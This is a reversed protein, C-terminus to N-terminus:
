CKKNGQQGETSQSLPSSPHIARQLVTVVDAEVVVNEVIRKSILDYSAHLGYQGRVLVVDGEGLHEVVHFLRSSHPSKKKGQESEWETRVGNGANTSASRSSSPGPIKKKEEDAHKEEEEVMPEDEMVCRIPIRQRHLTMQGPSREHYAHTEVEVELVIPLTPLHPPSPGSSHPLRSACSADTSSTSTSLTGGSSHPRGYKEHQQLHGHFHGRRVSGRVVGIGVWHSLGSGVGNGKPVTSPRSGMSLPPGDSPAGDNEPVCGARRTKESTASAGSSEHRRGSEPGDRKMEAERNNWTHGSASPRAMAVTGCRNTTGQSKRERTQRQHANRLAHTLTSRVQQLDELYSRLLANTHCVHDHLSTETDHTEEIAIAHRTLRHRQLTGQSLFTKKCEKCMWNQKKKTVRDDADSECHMDDEEGSKMEVVPPPSPSTYARRSWFVGGEGDRVVMPSPM